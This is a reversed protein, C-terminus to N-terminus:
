SPRPRPAPTLRQSCAHFLGCAFRAKEHAFRSCPQAVAGSPHSAAAPKRAATRLRVRAAGPRLAGHARAEAQQHVRRIRYAAGHYYPQRVFVLIRRRRHGLRFSRGTTWTTTTACEWIAAVLPVISCIILWGMFMGLVGLSLMALVVVEDGSLSDASIGSGNDIEIAASSAVSPDSLAVGGIGLFIMVLLSGAVALISLILVAISLGRVVKADSNPM